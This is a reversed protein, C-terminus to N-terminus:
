LMNTTKEVEKKCYIEVKVANHESFVSPIIEIEKFKNLSTKHGLMRDIRSFTEHASPFFTYNPTRLHFARYIDVIDM